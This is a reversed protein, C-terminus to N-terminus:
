RFVLEFSLPVRLLLCVVIELVNSEILNTQKQMVGKMWGDAIYHFKENKCSKTHLMIAVGVDAVMANDISEKVASQETNLTWQATACDFMKPLSKTEISVPANRM